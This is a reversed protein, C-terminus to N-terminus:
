HNQSGLSSWCSYFGGYPSNGKDSSFAVFQQLLVHGMYMFCLRIVPFVGVFGDAKEILDDIPLAAISEDKNQGLLASSPYM